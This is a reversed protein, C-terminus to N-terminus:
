NAPSVTGNVDVTQLRNELYSHFWKLPLGRIGYHELKQLLIHHDITDFAKKLDIFIGFTIYGADMKDTIDTILDVLALKTNYHKRFGYQTPLLINFKDLYALLQSKVVSEIIKSLIPLLSIPRYNSIELPSGKKYIPTIKAIKLLDPFIGTTISLNIIHALPSAIHQAAHIITKPHIHDPGMAKSPDLRGIENIVDNQSVPRLFFSATYHNDFLYNTFHEPSNIQAALAPGVDTFFDNFNQAIDIDKSLVEGTNSKIVQRPSM